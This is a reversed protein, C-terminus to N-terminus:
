NKGKKSNERQDMLVYHLDLTNLDNLIANRMKKSCLESSYKKLLDKKWTREARPNLKTASAREFEHYIQTMERFAPLENKHKKMKEALSVIHDISIDGKYQTRLPVVKKGDANYVDLKLM